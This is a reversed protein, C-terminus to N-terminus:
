PLIKKFFCILLLCVVCYAGSLCLFQLLTM